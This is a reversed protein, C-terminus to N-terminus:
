NHNKCLLWKSSFSAFVWNKSEPGDSPKPNLAEAFELWTDGFVRLKPDLTSTNLTYYSLGKIETLVELGADYARFM